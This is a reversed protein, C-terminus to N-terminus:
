KRKDQVMDFLCDMVEGTYKVSTLDIRICDDIPFIYANMSIPNISVIYNKDNRTEIFSMLMKSKDVEKMM